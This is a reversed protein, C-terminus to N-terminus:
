EFTEVEAMQENEVDRKTWFFTNQDVDMEHIVFQSLSLSTTDVKVYCDFRLLYLYFMSSSFSPFFIVSFQFIRELLVVDDDDAMKRSIIMM